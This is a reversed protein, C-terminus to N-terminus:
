DGFDRVVVSLSATGSPSHQLPCSTGCRSCAPSRKGSVCTHNTARELAVAYDISDGHSLELDIIHAAVQTAEVAEVTSRLSPIGGTHEERTVAALIHACGELGLLTAGIAASIHDQGIAADTPIPGLPMIPYGSARLPMAVRRIDMPRAHGPSEIIVGVGAAAISAALDIQLRIEERQAEDYSDFITGSRYSAGISLVVRHNKAHPLIDPLIQLYINECSWGRAALDTAVMNGGRSTSPILRKQSLQHLHRCPTPHITVLGVGGEMQEITKELLETRDLRGQRSRVSYVPLTAAVCDTTAVVTPWLLPKGGRVLSLDSIIDPPKPLSALAQIKGLQCKRQSERNMGVLAMVRTPYGPGVAIGTKRSVLTAIM